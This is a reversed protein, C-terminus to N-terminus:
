RELDIVLRAIKARIESRLEAEREPPFDGELVHTAFTGARIKELEWRSTTGNEDRISWVRDPAADIVKGHLHRGSRTVLDLLGDVAQPLEGEGSAERIGPAYLPINEIHSITAFVQEVPVHIPLRTEIRTM